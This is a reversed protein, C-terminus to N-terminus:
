FETPHRVAVPQRQALIEAVTFASGFVVVTGEDGAERVAEQYAEAVSAYPHANPLHCTEALELLADLSLTRTNPVTSLRWSKFTNRLSILMRTADKDHLVAFVAHLPRNPRYRQLNTALNCASDPNHAIDLITDVPESLQQFRGTVTVQQLAQPLTEPHLLDLEQLATISSAVNNLQVAGLLYPPMPLTMQTGDRHRYTWSDPHVEVFYDRNICALRAGLRRAQDLITAPPNPDGCIAPTDPRMIGAKERGISERTHGLWQTHDIGISTILAVDADWVNVADMRGGLGVELIAHHVQRQRFVWMAALAGYEFFSLSISGRAQEVQEFAECLEADSVEKGAVRIRENYRLFHPSTYTGVHTHPCLLTELMAVSSGKGNTGAVTIICCEPNLLDLRRAVARIRELGLDISTSHQHQQWALWEALTAFKM